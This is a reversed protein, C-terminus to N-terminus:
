EEAQPSEQPGDNRTELLAASLRRHVQRLEDLRQTANDESPSSRATDLLRPLYITSLAGARRAFRGRAHAVQAASLIHSFAHDLAIWHRDASM